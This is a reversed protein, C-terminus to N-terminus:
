SRMLALTWPSIFFRVKGSLIASIDGLLGAAAVTSNHDPGLTSLLAAHAATGLELAASSRGLSRQVTALDLMSQAVSPHNPPLAAQRCALAEEYQTLADQPRGDLALAGGICSLTDAIEPQLPHLRDRRVRLAEELHMLAESYRGLRCLTLGINYHAGAVRLDDNNRTFCRAIRLDKEYMMLAEVLLGMRSCVNGVNCFMLGVNLDWPGYSNMVDELDCVLTDLTPGTNNTREDDLNM